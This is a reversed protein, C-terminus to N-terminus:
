YSLRLTYEASCSAGGELSLRTVPLVCTSQYSRQERGYVLCSAYVPAFHADFTKDCSLTIIIENELDHLEVTRAGPLKGKGGSLVDKGEPGIRYVRLYEEKEGPFVLDLRPIFDFEAKEGGQNVLKYQVLLSDKKLHYTKNIEISNLSNLASAPTGAAGLRFVAKQRAKDTELVDYDEAGCFRLRGAKEADRTFFGAEALVAPSFGPLALIDTFAMRKEASNLAAGSEGPGTERALLTDLYNWSRPIFDFEFVAAGQKKVYVSIHDNRFIYEDEGDFDFDFSVLSPIFIGKIRATKEALLLSRYVASRIAGRYFGGSWSRCFADYGQAKWLEELAATKRAKDGRLQNVLVHTFITKAYIGNAEPYNVLFRKVSGKSDVSFYAKRCARRSKLVKGPTTFGAFAECRSLEEFFRNINKGAGEIGSIEDLIGNSSIAIIRGEGSAADTSDALSKLKEFLTDPTVGAFFAGSSPTFSLVGSPPVCFLPFVTLLKGQDETLCPAFLAEGELGAKQVQEAALFTYSIGCRNLVDVLGPEWALAPLWCGQPRKNFHKRLYDTFLEIQGIKDQQSILPMMPEYFGGGILEVQKRSILDEVLMFFEPHAREIWHLLVGSYHLVGRIAPYKNLAAIFPKLRCTYIHEFEEDKVGYPAHNHDVLILSVPKDM